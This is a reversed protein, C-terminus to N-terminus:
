DVEVVIVYNDNNLYKYAVDPKIYNKLCKVQVNGYNKAIKELVPVWTHDIIDEIIILGGSNCLNSYNNLFFIMSELSHPGDDIIIDFKSTLKEITEKTYADSIIKVIREHDTLKTSKDIIDIGTITANIFYDKWLLLSCGNKIGIELLSKTSERINFFLDSYLGDILGVDYKKTLPYNIKNILDVLKM